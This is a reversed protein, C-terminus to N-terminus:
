HVRANRGAALRAPQLGNREGRACPERSKGGVFVELRDEVANNADGRFILAVGGVLAAVGIFSAVIVITLM